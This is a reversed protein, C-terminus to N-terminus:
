GSGARAKRLGARIADESMAGIALHQIRGDRDVFYTTPLTFVNWRRFTEADTDLLPQIATLDYRDFFARVAPGDEQLDVGLVVLDPDQRAVADLIPMETRCPVCWTAWFNVILTRGHLDGLRLTRAEPANWEFDPAPAGVRGAADPRDLQRRIVGVRTALDTVAAPTVSPTADHRSAVLSLAAAGALAAVIFLALSRPLHVIDDPQM